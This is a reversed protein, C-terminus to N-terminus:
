DAKVCITFHVNQAKNAFCDSCVGKGWLSIKALPEIWKKNTYFVHVVKLLMPEVPLIYQFM